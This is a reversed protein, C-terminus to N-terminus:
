FHLLSTKGWEPPYRHPLSFGFQPAVEPGSAPGIINNFAPHRAPAAVSLRTPAARGGREPPVPSDQQDSSTLFPGPHFYNFNQPTPIIQQSPAPPRRGYSLHSSGNNGRLIQVQPRLLIFPLSNHGYYCPASEIIKGTADRITFHTQSFSTVLGKANLMPISLTNYQTREVVLGNKVVVPSGCSLRAHFDAISTSTEPNQNMYITRHNQRVNTLHPLIGAKFLHANAGSDALFPILEGRAIAESIYAPFDPRRQDIPNTAQLAQFTFYHSREGSNSPHPNYDNNYDNTYHHSSAQKNNTPTPGRQSDTPALFHQQQFKAFTTKMTKGLARSRANPNSM